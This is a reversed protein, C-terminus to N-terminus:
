AQAAVHRRGAENRTRHSASIKARTERSLPRRVGGNYRYNAFYAMFEAFKEARRACLFPLMAACIAYIKAPSAVKWVWIPKRGEGTRPGYIAGIGFVDRFKELMDLDTSSITMRWTLHSASSRGGDDSATKRSHLCGEGDFYGAAWAVGDRSWGLGRENAAM